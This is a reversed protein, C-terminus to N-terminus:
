GGAPPSIGYGFGRCSDTAGSAAIRGTEAITRHLFRYGADSFASRCGAPNKGNREAHTRRTRQGATLTEFMGLVVLLTDEPVWPEPQYGLVKFEFPLKGSQAIYSNVGEAYAQLYHRHDPPLKAVIAKAVRHFGYTRAKIDNGLAKDGFIEALRGASKRRMLDMQFLRDRATVYALARVADARNAADITPMGHADTRVRVEATLRDLKVTGDLQPMSKHLFWVGGGIAIVALCTLALGIYLIIKRINM